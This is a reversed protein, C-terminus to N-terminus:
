VSWSAARLTTRKRQAISPAAKLPRGLHALDPRQERPPRDVALFCRGVVGRAGRLVVDVRGDHERQAPVQLGGAVDVEEGVLAGLQEHLRRPEPDVEAEVADVARRREVDMPDGPGVLVRRDDVVVRVRVDHRAEVQAVGGARHPEQRLPVRRCELREPAVGIEVEAFEVCQSAAASAINM